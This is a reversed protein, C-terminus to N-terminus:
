YKLGIRQGFLRLREIWSKTKVKWRHKLGDQSHHVTLSPTLEYSLTLFVNCARCPRHVKFPHIFEDSFYRSISALYGCPYVAELIGFKKWAKAKWHAQITQHLISIVLVPSLSQFENEQYSAVQPQIESGPSAAWASMEWVWQELPHFAALSM